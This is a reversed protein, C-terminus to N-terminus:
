KKKYALQYFFYSMFGAIFLYPILNGFRAYFTPSSRIIDITASYYESTEQGTYRNNLIRGLHDVYASTGSNTSRVMWKRLEISRFRALELHQFTEMSVGYWKDNTINIIFDPNGKDMFKRVFEPIIVEYCILPLFKGIKPTPLKYSEYHQKVSDLNMWSTETWRIHSKDFKPIDEKTEHYSLLEVEKGPLFRGVQPVIDYLIPFTEGLPIYEGFALLFTKHYSPGRDGNPDFVASSNYFRQNKRDIKGDIFMADIENFFVNTKYRNALLFILSEFREYYSRNYLMTADSKNTSFFPIASEPIVIIDPKIEEAGKIALAEVREMLENMVERVGRGDRFELPGNPQLM